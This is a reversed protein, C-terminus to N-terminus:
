VYIYEKKTTLTPSSGVLGNYADSSLDSANVLKAM